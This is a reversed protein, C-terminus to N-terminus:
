YHTISIDDQIFSKNHSETKIKRYNIKEHTYIRNDINLMM